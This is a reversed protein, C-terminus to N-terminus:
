LPIAEAGIPVRDPDPRNRPRRRRPKPNLKQKLAEIVKAAAARDNLADLDRLSAARGGTARDIVGNLYPESIQLRDALEMIRHRQKQIVSRAKDHWYGMRWGPLVGGAAAEATAMYQEFDDQNLRPSRSTLRGGHVARGGLSSLVMRRQQDNWGAHRAAIAALRVQKPKWPM